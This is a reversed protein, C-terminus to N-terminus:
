RKGNKVFVGRMMSSYNPASYFQLRGEGIVTRGADDGPIFIGERSALDSLKQCDRASSVGHCAFLSLTVAIRICLMSVPVHRGAM